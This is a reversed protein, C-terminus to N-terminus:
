VDIYSMAISCLPRLHFPSSYYISALLLCQSLNTYEDNHRDKKDCLRCCIEFELVSRNGVWYKMRDRREVAGQNTSGHMVRKKVTYATGYEKDAASPAYGPKGYTGM